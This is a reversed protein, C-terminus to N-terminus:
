EADLTTAILTELEGATLVPASFLEGVYSCRSETSMGDADLAIVDRSDSFTRFM